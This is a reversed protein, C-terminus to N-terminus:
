GGGTLAIASEWGLVSAESGSEADAALDTGRSGDRDVKLGAAVDQHAFDVVLGLLFRVVLLPHACAEGHCSRPGLRSRV